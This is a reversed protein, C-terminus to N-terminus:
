RAAFAVDLGYAADVELDAGSLDEAEEPGVAGALRRGHPHERRQQRDGRPAGLHHADVDGAVRVLGTAPDADRELLRPEVRALRAALQQDQVAPQEAEAGGSRRFACLLQQREDLQVVGGVPHDLAVGAAHLAPEVERRREDM